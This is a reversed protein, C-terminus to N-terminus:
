SQQLQINTVEHFRKILRDQIAPRGWIEFGMDYLIFGRICCLAEYYEVKKPDIPSFSQYQRYYQAALGEVKIQPAIVPALDFRNLTNAVDHEPEWFKFSSWDL